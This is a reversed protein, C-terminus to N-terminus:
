PTLHTAAYQPPMEVSEPLGPRLDFGNCGNSGYIRLSYKQLEPHKCAAEEGGLPVAAPSGFYRCHKCHGWHGNRM